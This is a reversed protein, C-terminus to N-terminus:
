GGRWTWETGGQKRASRLRRRRPLLLAQGGCVPKSELDWREAEILDKMVQELAGRLLVHDLRQRGVHLQM